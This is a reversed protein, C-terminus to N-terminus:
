DLQWILGNSGALCDPGSGVAERRARPILTGGASPKIIGFVEYIRPTAGNSALQPVSGDYAAYARAGETTTSGWFRVTYQLITTAPGNIAVDIGTTGANSQMILYYHFRYTKGSTVAFGLDTLDAFSTGIGTQNTAKVAARPAVHGTGLFRADDGAAVTGAATGVNLTAAGGLGLTSRIAAATTDALVALGATGPTTGAVKAVGPNPYSGSLDGGASGNPARSDSLRSDNGAAAQAAGTGLTRLGATAAAPDKLNSHVDASEVLKAAADEAGSTVHRFGTGTPTSGGGPVAQGVLEDGDRVLMEGDAIDGVDLIEGNKLDIRQRANGCAM